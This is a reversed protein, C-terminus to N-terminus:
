KLAKQAVSLLKKDYENYTRDKMEKIGFICVEKEDASLLSAKKKCLSVIKNILSTRYTTSRQNRNADLYLSRLTSFRSLFQEASNVNENPDYVMVNPNNTFVGDSYNYITDPSAFTLKKGDLAVDLNALSKDLEEMSKNFEDWDYAVRVKKSTKKQPDPSYIIHLSGDCYDQDARNDYWVLGYVTRWKPKRSDRVYLLSYNRDRYTGFTISSESRAGYGVSWSSTLTEGAAKMKKQYYKCKGEEFADLLQNFQKNKKSVTFKYERYYATPLSDAEQAEQYNSLTFTKGNSKEDVFTRIAQEVGSQAMAATTMLAVALTATIKRITNM